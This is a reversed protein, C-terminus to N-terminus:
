MAVALPFSYIKRGYQLQGEWNSHNNTYFSCNWANQRNLREFSTSVLLLINTMILGWGIYVHLALGLRFMTLIYAKLELGAINRQVGFFCNKRIKWKNTILFFIGKEEISLSCWCDFQNFFANMCKCRYFRPCM